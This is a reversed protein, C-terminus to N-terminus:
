TNRSLGDGHLFGITSSHREINMWNVVKVGRTWYPQESRSRKKKHATYAGMHVTLTLDSM